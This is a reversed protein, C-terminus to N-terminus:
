FDRYRTRSGRGKERNNQTKMRVMGMLFDREATTRDIITEDQFVLGYKICGAIIVPMHELRIEVINDNVGLTTPPALFFCEVTFGTSYADPVPDFQVNTQNPYVRWMQPRFLIPNGSSDTNALRYGEFELESVREIFGEQNGWAPVVFRIIDIPYDTGAPAGVTSGNLGTIGRTDYDRQNAVWNFTHTKRLSGIADNAALDRIVEDLIPSLITNFGASTDGLRQGIQTLLDQKTM